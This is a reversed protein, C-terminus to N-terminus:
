CKRFLFLVAPKEMCREKRLDFEREMRSLEDLSESFGANKEAMENMLANLTGFNDEEQRIIQRSSMSTETAPPGGPLVDGISNQTNEAIAKDFFVPVCVQRRVLVRTNDSLRCDVDFDENENLENFARFIDERKERIQIRLSHFTRESIVVIEEIPRTSQEKEPEEEPVTSSQSQAFAPISIIVFIVIFYFRM